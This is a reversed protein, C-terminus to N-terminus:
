RKMYIGALNSRCQGIPAVVKGGVKQKNYAIISPMFVLPVVLGQSLVTKDIQQMLPGQVTPSLSSNSQQILPTLAPNVSGLHQAPFGSPEFLAEFSNSLDPGNTLLESLVADGQGKIYVDTLFDAGPIQQITAKFGAVSLEQQLLASARQFTADGAPIVLNFSVGNKYGAAKLLAKSKTPNYSDSTGLSKSYGPSWKPVPQYAPEGLGNFVVKNLANRDVAYELAVRVNTKAFPGTNQRLEIAMNDYSKTISIGINSDAALQPYNEPEVQIMDVAGSTLATAAQPGQTLQTFDVGGLPYAASNWYKPNKTLVISSGQKYSKLTYPGAGIPQNAETPINAAPMVMGDIYTMAWLFDGATPQNLNVVLTQADPTSMTDIATLSSRLPSTKTHNLSAEVDQSTVPAGNSFVMGPRLHFTITSSNNSVTWSQAVGGSIAFNGPATVSQFTNQTVTYSCDNLGTTDFSNSFENNLDYGYKLVGNPNINSPAASAPETTSVTLAAPAFFAASAGVAVLRRARQRQGSRRQGGPTKTGVGQHLRM